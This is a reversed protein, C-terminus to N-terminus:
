YYESEIHKLYHPNQVPMKSFSVQPRLMGPRQNYQSVYHTDAMSPRFEDGMSIYEADHHRYRKFSPMRRIGTFDRHLDVPVLEAHHQPAVRGYGPQHRVLPRVASAHIMPAMAPMRGEHPLRGFGSSHTRVLPNSTYRTQVGPSGHLSRSQATHAPEIRHSSRNVYTGDRFFESKKKVRKVRRLVKLPDVFGTVTVKQNYQDCVVNKVGDCEQVAEKVKEQCKECCMPVRMEMVPVPGQGKMGNQTTFTRQQTYGSPYDLDDKSSFLQV